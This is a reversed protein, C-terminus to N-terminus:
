LDVQIQRRLASILLQSLSKVSGEVDCITELEFVFTYGGGPEAGLRM